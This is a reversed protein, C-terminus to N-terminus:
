LDLFFPTKRDCRPSGSFFPRKSMTFTAKALVFKKSNKNRLEEQRFKGENEKIKSITSRDCNFQAAIYTIKRQAKLADLIEIEQMLTLQTRKGKLQAM